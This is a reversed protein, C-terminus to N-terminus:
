FQLFQLRINNITNCETTVYMIVIESSSLFLKETGSVPHQPCWGGARSQEAQDSQLSLSLAFYNELKVRCLCAALHLLQCAGPAIIRCKPEVRGADQAGVSQICTVNKGANKRCSPVNLVILCCCHLNSCLPASKEGGGPVFSIVNRM